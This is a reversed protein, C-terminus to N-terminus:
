PNRCKVSVFVGGLLREKRALYLEVSQVAGCQIPTPFGPCVSPRISLIQMCPNWFRGSLKDTSHSSKIQSSRNSPHRVSAHNIPPFYTNAHLPSSSSLLSSFFPSSLLPFRSPPTNRSSRFKSTKHHQIFIPISIPFPIPIMSMFSNIAERPVPISFIHLLSFFFPHPSLTYINCYRM